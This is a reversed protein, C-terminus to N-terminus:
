ILSVNQYCISCYGSNEEKGYYGCGNICLGMPKCEIIDFMLHKRRERERKIAQCEGRKILEIERVTREIRIRNIEHLHGIYKKYIRETVYMFNMQKYIDMYSLIHIICQYPLDTIKM